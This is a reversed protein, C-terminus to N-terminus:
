VDFLGPTSKQSWLAASYMKNIEGGRPFKYGLEFFICVFLSLHMDSCSAVSLPGGHEPVWSFKRSSTACTASSRPFPENAQRQGRPLFVGPFHTLCIGLAQWSVTGPAPPSASDSPGFRSAGFLLHEKWGPFHELHQFDVCVGSM